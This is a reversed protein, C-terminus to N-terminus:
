KKLNSKVDNLIENAKEDSIDDISLIIKKKLLARKFLNIPDEQKDLEAIKEDIKKILEEPSFKSM